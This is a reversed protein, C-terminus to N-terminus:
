REGLRLSAGDFVIIPLRGPYSGFDIQIIGYAKAVQITYMLLGLEGISLRLERWACHRTWVTCFQWEEQVLALYGEAQRHLSTNM